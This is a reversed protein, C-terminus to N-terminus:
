LRSRGHADSYTSELDIPVCGANRLDLPLLPLAQGLALSAPWLDVQDGGDTRRLPRYAAAYLNVAEPLLYPAGLNLRRILQNHLNATRETVIDM